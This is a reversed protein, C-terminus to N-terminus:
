WNERMPWALMANGPSGYPDYAASIPPQVPMEQEAYSELAQKFREADLRLDSREQQPLKVVPGNGLHTALDYAAWLSWEPRMGIAMSGTNNTRNPRAAVTPPYSAVKMEISYAESAGPVPWVELRIDTNRDLHGFQPWGTTNDNSREREWEDLRVLRFPNRNGSADVITCALPYAIGDRPGGHNALRYESVGQMLPVVVDTQSTRQVVWREAMMTALTKDLWDLGRIVDHGEPATDNPGFKGILALADSVIQRATLQLSM